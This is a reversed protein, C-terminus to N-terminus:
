RPLVNKGACRCARGLVDPIREPLVAPDNSGATHYANGVVNVYFTSLAPLFIAYDSQLETLNTPLNTM